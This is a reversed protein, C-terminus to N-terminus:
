LCLGGSDWFEGSEDLDEEDLEKTWFEWDM